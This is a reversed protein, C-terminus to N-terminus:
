KNIGVELKNEIENIDHIFVMNDNSLNKLYELLYEKQSIDRYEFLHILCYKTNFRSTVIASSEIGLLIDFHDLVL